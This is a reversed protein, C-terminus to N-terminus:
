FRIGEAALGDINPTEVNEAGYVGLDLAINEGVIWLINPRDPPESAEVPATEDAGFLSTALLITTLVLKISTM